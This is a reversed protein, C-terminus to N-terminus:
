GVVKITMPSSTSVLDGNWAISLDGTATKTVLCEVEVNNLYTCVIPTTGCKHVAVPISVTANTDTTTIYNHTIIASLKQLAANVTDTAAISATAGSEDKSPDVYGTVAIDAGNLVPNSSIKKANVKYADITTKATTVKTTADTEAETKATNIATQVGSLKIGTASLTLFTETSPDLVISIVNTDSIAIGNGGTHDKVLDLVNIYIPNTQNAVILKIAKGTGTINETFTDDNWTGQVVSGGTVVLDKPITVKVIKNTEASGGQYFTYSKVVDGEAGGEVCTVKAGEGSSAYLETLAATVTKDIFHNDTETIKVGEAVVAARTVAVKGDTENVATVFKNSVATDTVDLATIKGDAYTKASALNTADATNLTDLADKVTTGTVNTSDNVINSGTPRIRTISIKGDTENVATVFQNTVVTDTVDLAAISDDTYKESTTIASAKATDADGAADFVGDKISFKNDTKTITTEDATYPTSYIGNDADLKVDNDSSKINVKVTTGSTSKTVVVSKDAATVANSVIDSEKAITVWETGNYYKEVNDTTNYIKRGAILDITPDATVQELVQNQIQNGHLDINFLFNKSVSM